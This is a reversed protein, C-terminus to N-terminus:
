GVQQAVRAALDHLGDPDVPTVDAYVDVMGVRDGSRALVAYAADAGGGIRWVQAVAGSTAVSTVLTSPQARRSGGTCHRYWGSVRDYLEKAQPPSALQAVTQAATFATGRDWTVTVTGEAGGADSLPMRQCAYAFQPEANVLSEVRLPPWGITEFDTTTLLDDVGLLDDSSPSTTGPTDQPSGPSGDTLARATLGAGAGAVLSATLVLTAVPRAIRRNM